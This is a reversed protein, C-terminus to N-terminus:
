PRLREFRFPTQYITLRYEDGGFEAVQQCRSRLWSGLEPMYDIGFQKHQSGYNSLVFYRVRAMELRQIFDIQEEPTTLYGFFIQDEKVPNDQGAFLYLSPEMPAAVFKEGPLLTQQLYGLTALYPKGISAPSWVRGCPAAVLVRPAQYLDVIGALHRGALAFLLVGMAGFVYRRSRAPALAAPLWNVALAVWAILAVPAQYGSYENLGHFLTRASVLLGYCAVLAWALEPSAGRRDRQLRYLCVWLVAALLLFSSGVWAHHGRELLFGLRNPDGLATTVAGLTLLLVLFGQLPKRLAWSLIHPGRSLVALVGVVLFFWTLNARWTAPTGTWVGGSNWLAMLRTPWTSELVTSLPMQSLLLLVTFGPVLLAPLVLLWVESGRLFPRAGRLPLCFAAFLYVAVFSVAAVGFELKTVCSLGAALGGILLWRPHGTLMHRLIALLLLLGWGVAFTAAFSYPWLYGNLDRGLAFHTLFLIVVAIAPRPLLCQRAVAYLLACVAALHLASAVYLVNLHEGFVFLLGAWAYPAVPGYLYYFDRYILAGHKIQFPVYLERAADATLLPWQGWTLVVFVLLFVGLIGLHFLDQRLYSPQETPFRQDV